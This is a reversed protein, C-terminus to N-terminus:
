RNWLSWLVTMVAAKDQREWLTLACCRPPAMYSDM